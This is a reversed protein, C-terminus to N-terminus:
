LMEGWSNVQERVGETGPKALGDRGDQDITGTEPGTGIFPQDIEIDHHVAISIKRPCRERVQQVADQWRSDKVELNGESITSHTGFICHYGLCIELASGRRSPKM